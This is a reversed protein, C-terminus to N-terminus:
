AIAFWVSGHWASPYCQYRRKWWQHITSLHNMSKQDPIKQHCRQPLVRNKATWAQEAAKLWKRREAVRWDNAYDHVAVGLGFIFIFRFNMLLNLLVYVFRSVVMSRQCINTAWWVTTDSNPGLWQNRPKAAAHFVLAAVLNFMTLMPLMAPAEYKTRKEAVFCKPWACEVSEASRKSRIKRQMRWRNHRKCQKSNLQHWKTWSKRKHTKLRVIAANWVNGVHIARKQKPKM